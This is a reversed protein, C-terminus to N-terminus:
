DCCCFCALVGFMSWWLLGNNFLCCLKWLVQKLDLTMRIYHLNDFALIFIYWYLPVVKKIEEDRLITNLM